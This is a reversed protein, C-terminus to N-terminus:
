AAALTKLFSLTLGTDKDYRRNVIAGGDERVQVDLSTKTITIQIDDGSLLERPTQLDLVKDLFAMTQEAASLRTSDDIDKKRDNYIAPIPIMRREEYRLLSHRYLPNQVRHKPSLIATLLRLSVKRNFPTLARRWITSEEKTSEMDSTYITGKVETYITRTHQSGGRDRNDVRKEFVIGDITVNNKKSTHKHM